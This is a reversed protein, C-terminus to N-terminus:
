TSSLQASPLQASPWNIVQVIDTGKRLSDNVEPQVAAFNDDSKDKLRILTLKNIQGSGINVCESEM